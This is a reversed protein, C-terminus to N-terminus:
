NIELDLEGPELELERIKDISVKDVTESAAQKFPVILMMAVFIAILPLRLYTAFRNMVANISHNLIFLVAGILYVLLYTNLTETIDADVPYVYAYVFALGYMYVYFGAVVIVAQAGVRIKNLLGDGLVAAGLGMVLIIVIWWIYSLRIIGETATGSLADHIQSLIGDLAEKRENTIFICQTWKHIGNKAAFVWWSLFSAGALAIYFVISIWSGPRDFLDVTDRFGLCLIDLVVIILMVLGLIEAWPRMICLAASGLGLAIYVFGSQKNCMYTVLMFGFTLAVAVDVNLVNFMPMAPYTLWPLLGATPVLFIGIVISKWKIKSLIPLIMAVVFICAARLVNADSFGSQLATFEYAFLAYGPQYGIKAFPLTAVKKIGENEAIMRVYGAMLESPGDSPLTMGETVVVIILLFFVFAVFGLTFTNIVLNKFKERYLCVLVAIIMGAVSLASVAIVGISLYGIIASIYLLLMHSFVSLALTEEFRRNFIASYMIALCVLCTCTLMFFLM